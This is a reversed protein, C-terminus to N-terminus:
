FPCGKAAEYDRHPIALPWVAEFATRCLRIDQPNTSTVKATGTGNGAYHLFVVLRDDFLYFDTGPVVISSVLRHPVWRIVEGADVM